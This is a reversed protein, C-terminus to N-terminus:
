LGKNALFSLDGNFNIYFIDENVKLVFKFEAYTPINDGFYTRVIEPTREHYFVYQFIQLYYKSPDSVQYPVTRDFVDIIQKTVKGSADTILDYKEPSTPSIGVWVNFYNKKELNDRLNGTYFSSVMQGTMVPFRNDFEYRSTKSEYYISGDENEHYGFRFRLEIAYWYNKLDVWINYPDFGDNEYRTNIEFRRYMRAWNEISNTPDLKGDPTEGYATVSITLIDYDQGRFCESNKDLLLFVRNMNTYYELVPPESLLIDIAAM